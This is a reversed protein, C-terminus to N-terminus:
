RYTTTANDHYKEGYKNLHDPEAGRTLALNVVVDQGASVTVPASVPKAARRTYAFVTWSGPPVGEIAYSGDANRKTHRRNPLVLITAAMEPHINCYVDVVGPDLFDKDKADGRKFSGLDFKRATSQSFVNHLFADGNPFKVHEGVTIAVLDPVFKKDKQAVQTIETGPAEKFGVVYIIADANSPKGDADTIKVTGVVRGTGGAAAVGTPALLGLM